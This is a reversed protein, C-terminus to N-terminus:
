KAVTLTKESRGNEVFEVTRYEGKPIAVILPSAFTATDSKQFVTAYRLEVAGHKLAVETVKFDCLSNGRHIAAIILHTKFVGPPLRRAKDRMVFATGFVRDFHAQDEIIVFSSAADPEFKNSVFYGTYIEFPLATKDGALAASGALLFLASILAAIVGVVKVANRVAQTKM